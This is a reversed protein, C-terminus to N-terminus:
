LLYKNRIDILLKTILEQFYEKKDLEEQIEKKAMGDNEEGLLLLYAQPNRKIHIKALSIENEIKRESEKKIKQNKANRYIRYEILFDNLISNLIESLKEWDEKTYEM